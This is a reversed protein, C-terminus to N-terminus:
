DKGSKKMYLFMVLGGLAFGTVWMLVYGGAAGGAFMAASYLGGTGTAATDAMIAPIIFSLGVALAFCAAVASGAYIRRKKKLKQERLLGARRRAEAAIEKNSRM